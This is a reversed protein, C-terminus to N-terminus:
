SGSASRQEPGIIWHETAAMHFIYKPDLFRMYDPRVRERYCSSQLAAEAAQADDFWLQSVADFRSEGVQYFSDRVHGQLYRRLGPLDLVAPAHDNLLYSRFASLEMGPKRKQLFYLKVWTPKPTPPPGERLVHPDTDLALTAWFAAWRPEDIRAGELFEKSELSAMQDAENEFWIEAVGSFLPNPDAPGTDIRPCVM